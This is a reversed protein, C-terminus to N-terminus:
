NEYIFSLSPMEPAPPLFNIVNVVWSDGIPYLMLYIESARGRGRSRCLRIDAEDIGKNIKTMILQNAVNFDQKSTFGAPSVETFDPLNKLLLADRRRNIMMESPHERQYERVKNMVADVLKPDACEPKASENEPFAFLTKEKNNDGSFADSVESSAPAAAEREAPTEDANPVADSQAEAAVPATDAAAAAVTGAPENPSMTESSLQEAAALPLATLSLFLIVCYRFM